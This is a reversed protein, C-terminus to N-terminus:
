KSFVSGAVVNWPIIKYMSVINNKMYPDNEAFTHIEEKSMNKFILIGSPIDEDTAGGLLLNGNEIVEMLYEFHSTRYPMRKELYGDCFSYNLIHYM